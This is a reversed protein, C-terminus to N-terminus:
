AIRASGAVGPEAQDRRAARMASVCRRVLDESLAPPPPTPAQDIEALATRLVVHERLAVACDPCAALHAEFAQQEQAPLAEDLSDLLLTLFSACDANM